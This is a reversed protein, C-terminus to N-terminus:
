IRRSWRVGTLGRLCRARLGAIWVEPGSISSWTSLREDRYACRLQVLVAGCRNGTSQDPAGPLAPARATARRSDGAYQRPPDAM